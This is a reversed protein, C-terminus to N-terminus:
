DDVKHIYSSGEHNEIVKIIGCDSHSAVTAHFISLVLDQLEQDEELASVELATESRLRERSIRRNHSKFTGRDSLYEGLENAKTSADSDGSFMYEEAWEKALIESLDIAEEAREVLGPYIHNLTPQHHAIPEGEGEKNEVTEMFDIIAQAPTWVPGNPGPIRMQPDTPGLSSHHGMIVEDAACCLLTGGSLAVRPVIVRLHDYKERIYSVIEECVEPDGGPTNIILDLQDGELEHFSQMFGHVDSNTITHKETRFDLEDWGSSYLVTDRSTQNHLKELYKQRVAGHATPSTQIEDLIESWAPM